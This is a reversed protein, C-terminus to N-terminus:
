SNYNKFQILLNKNPLVDVDKQPLVKWEQTPQIWDKNELQVPMAFGDVCNEWRYFYQNKEKKIALIPIQTTRLYQNFFAKLGLKTKDEIYCEIQAGTVIKHRFDKNLGRMLALFAADDNMWERLTQIMCAGKNYMDVSGEQHEDHVGQMPRDNLIQRQYGQLYKQAAEKGYYYEVFLAESYTTFAEHVWMDAIQETTINNGFWEHGSEHIIIFDFLNGYGSGSRDMGRYGNQYENGYAINSQHEMGLFPTEVLKYSDEYFPYAGFWHEFAKLMMPVQKFQKKAKELNYDLVWYNLKLKGNEGHYTDSFHVYNGINPTINYTNIPNKVQWTYVGNEKSILNGNAVAVQNNETKVRIMAGRDPEDGQYDKCPFWLSAGQHQVAVSLWNRNELDKTFIWGGDWPAQLAIKPKGQFSFRLKINKEQKLKKTPIFYHDGKNLISHLPIKKVKNFALLQEVQTIQMPKQLDIQLFRGQKDLSLDIVVEGKISKSEAYTELQLDYYKVDWFDRFHNNKGRLYKEALSISDSQAQTAVFNLGM